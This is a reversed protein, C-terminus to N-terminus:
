RTKGAEAVAILTVRSLDEESESGDEFRLWAKGQSTPKKTLVLLAPCKNHLVHVSLKKESTVSTANKKTKGKHDERGAAEENEKDQDQGRQEDMFGRLRDISSRTIEEAENQLWAIVENPQKKYSTVLENIVTVDSTRGASFAEAIPEPLDLLTVHQSVFSASKGISKAIEYQKQGRSLERGIFDAIERATLGNRQLNEIVQDSSIYDNDIFSPITTKGALKSARYRRAGHNILYRGQSSRNVRVSIPTKVGRLKITEALEKISESAFGPNDLHRPQDPDEDIKDLEIEMPGAGGSAPKERLLSSLNGIKTLGLGVSTPNETQQTKRAANPANM